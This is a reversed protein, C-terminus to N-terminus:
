KRETHEYPLWHHKNNHFEFEPDLSRCQEERFDSYLEECEQSNCLQFQYNAGLCTRGGNAPRPLVPPSPLSLSLSPPLPLFTLSPRHSCHHRMDKQLVKVIHHIAIIGHQNHETLVLDLVKESHYWPFTALYIQKITTQYQKINIYRPNDCKRNRFQVGGGCTHTCSGFQSWVGWGGDQKIM